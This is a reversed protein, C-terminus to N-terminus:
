VKLALFHQHRRILRSIVVTPTLTDFQNLTLPM